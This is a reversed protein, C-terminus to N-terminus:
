TAKEKIAYLNPFILSAVCCLLILYFSFCLVAVMGQFLFTKAIAYKPLIQVDVHIISTRKERQVQERSIRM